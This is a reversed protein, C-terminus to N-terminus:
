VKGQEVKRYLQLVQRAIPEKRFNVARRAGEQSLKERLEPQEVLQCLCEGLKTNEDSPFTLASRGLVESLASAKSAVM